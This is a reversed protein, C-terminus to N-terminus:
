VVSNGSVDREVNVQLNWTGRLSVLDLVGSSFM